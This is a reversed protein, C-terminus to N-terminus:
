ADIEQETNCTAVGAAADCEALLSAPTPPLAPKREGAEMLRREHPSLAVGLALCTRYHQALHTTGREAHALERRIQLVLANARSWAGTVHCLDDYALDSLAREAAALDARLRDVESM